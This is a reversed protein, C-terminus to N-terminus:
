AFWTLFKPIYGAVFIVIILAPIAYTIWLRTWSPFALGKGITMEKMYNDWGWGWRTTCFLVYALSGLPLLNNSVIFDEISQIDGIGPVVVSSWLNFGLACPLSLVGVGVGMRIVASRRTLDWKEMVFSIINELVAILTSLAAFGMFVFFLMGWVRGWPMQNFVSPLTVFVLGPGSDPNVQFAFCAPFIILGAIFAVVTDLACIRVADSTLSHTKNIRSGFIEMASIGLSLTFFAQGMAAFIAEGLHGWSFVGEANYVLNEFQPVLYFAVGESAGPLTLSRIVLIGMIALLAVMMIKTIREVGKKLGLSCVLMGLCVSIIMWAVQESPSALSDTFVSAVQETDADSFVGSGMKVVYNLMWGCVVTYFMLLIVNGSLALWPYWGWRAGQSLKGFARAATAQSARGVAFEMTMVPLGLAVLFFIYLLIFAAGGYQGAIYPFRWVNGLGVACGASVLIFGLRSSFHERTGSSHIQSPSHDTTM